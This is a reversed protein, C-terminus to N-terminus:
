LEIQDQLKRALDAMQKLLYDPLLHDSELERQIHFLFTILRKIATNRKERKAERPDKDEYASLIKTVEARVEKPEKASVLVSQRLEAYDQPTFRKNEKALRLLNVSEYNPITKPNEEEQFRPAVFRPEEKELFSYSRLLKSATALKLGLEKACYAEFSLHGWDKYQKDKQITYLYQGLEIWSAKYKRAAELIKERLMENKEEKVITTM